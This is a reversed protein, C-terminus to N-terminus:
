DLYCCLFLYFCRWHVFRHWRLWLESIVFCGHCLFVLVAVRIEDLVVVAFNVGTDFLLKSKTCVASVFLSEVVM